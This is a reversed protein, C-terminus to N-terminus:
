SSTMILPKERLASHQRRRRAGRNCHEKPCDLRAKALVPGAAVEHGSIPHYDIARGTSLIVAIADNTLEAYRIATFTLSTKCAEPEAGNGRVTLFPQFSRTRGPWEVDGERTTSGNSTTSCIREQLVAVDLAAFALKPAFAEVLMPERRQPLSTLDDDLPTLVVILHAGVAATPSDRGCLESGLM